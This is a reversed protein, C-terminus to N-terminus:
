LWFLPIFFSWKKRQTSSFNFVSSRFFFYERFRFWDFKSQNFWHNARESISWDFWDIKVRLFISIWSHSLCRIYETTIDLREAKSDLINFYTLIIIKSIIASYKSMLVSYPLHKDFLQIDLYQDQINM